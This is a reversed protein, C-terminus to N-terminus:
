GTNTSDRHAQPNYKKQHQKPHMTYASVFRGDRTNKLNRFHTFCGFTLPLPTIKTHENNKDKRVNTSIKTDFIGLLGSGLLLGKSALEIKVMKATGLQFGKVVLIVTIGLLHSRHLLLDLIELVLEFLNLTTAISFALDNVILVLHQDLHRLRVILRGTAFV